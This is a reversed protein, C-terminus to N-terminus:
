NKFYIKVKRKVIKVSVILNRNIAFSLPPSDPNRLREMVKDHPWNEEYTTEGKNIICIPPLGKDVIFSQNTPDIPPLM